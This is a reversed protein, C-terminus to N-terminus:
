SHHRLDINHYFFIRVLNINRYQNGASLQQFINLYGLQLNTNIGTQFKLGAYFRNQDFYNNVIQKGVNVNIEDYIVFSLAGPAVGKKDLAIEIFIAKM